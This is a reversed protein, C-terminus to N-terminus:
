LIIGSSIDELVEEQLITIKKGEVEIIKRDRL